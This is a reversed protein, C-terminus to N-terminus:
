IQLSGLAVVHQLWGDKSFEPSRMELAKLIKDTRPVVNPPISEPDNPDRAKHALQRLMSTGLVAIYLLDPDKKPQARPQGPPKIRPQEFEASLERVLRFLNQAFGNGCSLWTRTICTDYDPALSAVINGALLGQMLIPKRAEVLSPLGTARVERHQDPLPSIALAFTRTILESPPTNSADAAFITKYYKRNPEDRAFLKAMADIAHPLYPHLVPEFLAFHLKGIDSLHPAPTPAFVLIFQLLSEAQERGQIELAHAVNSLLVIVDKFFDLTDSQTRLLMNRTGLYRIVDCLLKVLLEDALIGHNLPYFSLNRLITTICLLRDVARELNYEDTGVLHLKRIAMNELRCSRSVDEYSSILIEDSLEETHEVLLEVQDEACEVLSELLEECRTLDIELGPGGILPGQPSTVTALTDLALRVEALIGSQLSKTLAHLDINGLHAPPPIDPKFYQYEMGLRANVELEFGGYTKPEPVRSCPIYEDPEKTLPAPFPM